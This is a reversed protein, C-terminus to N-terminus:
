PQVPIGNRKIVAVTIDDTQTSSHRFQRVADMLGEVIERASKDRVALVFEIARSLGFPEGNAAVAEVLGDTFLLLIGDPGFEAEPNCPVTSQDLLGLPSMTSELKTVEGSANLLYGEHGAGAYSFRFRAPNLRVLFLEVFWRDRVDAV